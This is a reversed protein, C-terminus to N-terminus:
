GVGVAADRFTNNLGFVPTVWWPCPGRAYLVVGVVNAEGEDKLKSRAERFSDGTTLVDDVILVPSDTNGLRLEHAHEALKEALKLGGAPIGVVRRFKVKSAILEAICAWDEDTLSDCCIKWFLELGSHSTFKDWKFM